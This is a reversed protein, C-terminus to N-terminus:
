LSGFPRQHSALTRGRRLDCTHSSAAASKAVARNMPPMRASGCTLSVGFVPAAHLRKEAALREAATPNRRVFNLYAQESATFYVKIPDLTSVTDFKL